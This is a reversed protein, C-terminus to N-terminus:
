HFVGISLRLLSVDDDTPKPPNDQDEVPLLFSLPYTGAEWIPRYRDEVEILVPATMKM